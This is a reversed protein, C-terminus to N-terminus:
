RKKIASLKCNKVFDNEDACAFGLGSPKVIAISQKNAIGNVQYLLSGDGKDMWVKLQISKDPSTVTQVSKIDQAMLVNVGAFFLFSFVISKKM